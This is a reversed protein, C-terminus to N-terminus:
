LRPISLGGDADIVSGTAFALDGRVLPLVAGAIDSPQGWRQAPVLGDEIRATYKDKVGSTMPTEIIGPRVEFVGIGEPALRVSFLNSMMALASKSMCYEAREISVMTASVSGIFIISRYAESAHSVMRRAVAQALFFAGRLNIDMVFDYNEPLIDLMDGRVPAGVGANSIFSTVPGLEAEIRDLLGPHSETARVDHSFYRAADGLASLTHQVEDGDPAQRAVLAVKFGADVLAQAIGFGIGRQGGTILAVGSM